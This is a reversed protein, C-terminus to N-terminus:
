ARVLHDRLKDLGRGQLKVFVGDAFIIEIAKTGLLPFGVLPSPAAQRIAVITTVPRTLRPRLWRAFPHVGRLEFVGDQVTM